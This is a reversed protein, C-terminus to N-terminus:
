KETGDRLFCSSFSDPDEKLLPLFSAYSSSDCGALTLTQLRIGLNGSKGFLKRGLRGSPRGCFSVVCPRFEVTVLKCKSIGLVIHGPQGMFPKAM